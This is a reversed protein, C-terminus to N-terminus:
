DTTLEGHVVHYWKQNDPGVLSEAVSHFPLLAPVSSKVARYNAADLPDGKGTYRAISPFPFAPRTALAKRAPMAVPNSAFVAEHLRPGQGGADSTGPAPPTGGARRPASEAGAPGGPGRMDGGDPKATMLLAPPRHLETWAMLPTLVEIQSYGDGGGCHGVGPILFLRLFTDTKAEGLVKQVGQYYALSITPAVSTDSWGHWMILKGGREQFVRLDTNTANYLSAYRALEDFHTRTFAFTTVDAAAPNVSPYLLYKLAASVIGESMSKAHASAPVMWQEESGPQAGGLTFTRGDTDTPGRYLREVVGMEEATLCQSTDHSGAACLPVWAPDFKCARPDQLLGDDVGSLTPCHALVARHLIPLRDRLLIASGDTRQNARVYWAHYFSNQTQFLTAPAGASIGDFDDPYRQAEMLAERGGDSCGVFYAYRQPQGYFAQILAKAVLANQHNARYAFDIRKQPDSGFAGQDDGMMSGKHGMDNGAVVFEGNLAPACTSANSIGVRTMGCLGGCGGQLYRQTWHEEPLDVEFGIAPAIVGEVKCFPGQPTTITSTKTISVQADAFPTLDTRALAECSVVPKVIPLDLADQAQARAATGISLLWAFALWALWRGALSSRPNMPLPGKATKISPMAHAGGTANPEAAGTWM